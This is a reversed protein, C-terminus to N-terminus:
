HVLPLSVRPLPVRGLADGWMAKWPPWDHGGPASLQHSAPLIDAMLPPMFPQLRDRDGYGMYLPPRSQLPDAYGQLWLLLMHEIQSSKPQVEPRWRLLGGADRVEQLVPKPAVYPALAIIGDVEDPHALAYRMAGFGGLSIGAVWVTRYGQARAPRIVDEHLRLEFSGNYFYALHADAIVVDADIGRERVQDVFGERVIDQPVEQAGPMFVILTQSRSAPSLPLSLVEMPVQPTRLPLSCGGLATAVGVVLVVSALRWDNLLTRLKM